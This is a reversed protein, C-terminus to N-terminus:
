SRDKQKIEEYEADEVDRRSLDLPAKPKSKGKVQVQSQSEAPYFLSRFWRRLIKYILYFVMVWFIFRFLSM